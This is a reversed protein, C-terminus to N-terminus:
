RRVEPVVIPIRPDQETAAWRAGACFAGILALAALIALGARKGIRPPALPMVFACGAPSARAIHTRNRLLVHDGEAGEIEYVQGNVIVRRGVWPHNTM